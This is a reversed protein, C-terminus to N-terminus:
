FEKIASQLLKEQVNEIPNELDVDNLEIMKQKGGCQSEFAVSEFDNSKSGVM